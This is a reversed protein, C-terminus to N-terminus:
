RSVGGDPEEETPQNDRVGKGPKPKKDKMTSLHQVHADAIASLLKAGHIAHASDDGAAADPDNHAHAALSQHKGVGEAIAAAQKQSKPM